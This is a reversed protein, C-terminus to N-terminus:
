RRLASSTTPATLGDVCAALGSQCGQAICQAVQQKGNDNLGSLLATCDSPNSKCSTAAISCLQALTSDSCAQALAAHGCNTSQTADCLQRSSMTSMCSIAAAAVRPDFYATYTACKQQPVTNTSCTSDAAPV